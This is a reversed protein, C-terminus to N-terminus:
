RYDIRISNGNQHIPPNSQIEQVEEKREGGFWSNNVHIKGHISVTGAAGNRVTIDGSRSLVELDGPGNVQFSRDFTGAGSAFSALASAFIFVLTRLVRHRLRLNTTM